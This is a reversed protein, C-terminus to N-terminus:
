EPESSPSLSVSLALGLLLSVPSWGHRQKTFRMLSGCVNHLSQLVVQGDQHLLVLLCLLHSCKLPFIFCILTYATITM